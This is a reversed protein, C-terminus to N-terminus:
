ALSLEERDNSYVLRAYDEYYNKVASLFMPFMEHAICDSFDEESIGNPFDYRLQLDHDEDIAFRFFRRQNDTNCHILATALKQDPVRILDWVALVPAQDDRCIFHVHQKCGSELEFGIITDTGWDYECTRYHLGQQDLFNDICATFNKKM